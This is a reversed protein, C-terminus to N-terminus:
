RMDNKFRPLDLFICAYNNHGSVCQMEEKDQIKRNIKIKLILIKLECNNEQESFLWAIRTRHM